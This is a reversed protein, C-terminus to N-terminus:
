ELDLDDIDIHRVRKRNGQLASRATSLTNLMNRIEDSRTKNTSLTSPKFMADDIDANNDELYETEESDNQLHSLIGIKTFGSLIYKNDYTIDYLGYTSLTITCQQQDLRINDTSAHYIPHYDHQILTEYLIQMPNM